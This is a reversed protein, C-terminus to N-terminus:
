VCTIFVDAVMVMGYLVEMVLSIMSLVGCMHYFVIFLPCISVSDVFGQCRQNHIFRSLFHFLVMSRVFGYMVDMAMVMKMIYYGYVECYIEKKTAKM